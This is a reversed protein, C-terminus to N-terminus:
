IASIQLGGSSPRARRVGCTPVMPAPAISRLGAEFLPRYYSAKSILDARLEARQQSSIPRDTTSEAANPTIHLGHWLLMRRASELVLLPRIAEYWLRALTTNAWGATAAATAFDATDFDEPKYASDVDALQTELDTRVALPLKVDFTHAERIYPTVLAPSINTSFATFDAFDALTILLKM